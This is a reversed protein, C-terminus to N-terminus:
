KQACVVTKIACSIATLSTTESFLVTYATGLALLSIVHLGTSERPPSIHETGDFGSSDVAANSLM